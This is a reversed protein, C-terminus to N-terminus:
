KIYKECIKEVQKINEEIESTMDKEKCLSHGEWIVNEMKERTAVSMNNGDNFLHLSNISITNILRVINEFCPALKKDLKAKAVYKLASFSAILEKKEQIRLKAVLYYFPAAEGKCTARNTQKKIEDIEFDLAAPHRIWSISEQMQYFLCLIEEALESKKKYTYERYWSRMGWIAVILIGFDSIASLKELCNYITKLILM